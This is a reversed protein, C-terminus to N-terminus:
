RVYRSDTGDVLLVDGVFPTSLFFSVAIFAFIRTAQAFPAPVDSIIFIVASRTVLFSPMATASMWWQAIESATLEARWYSITKAGSLKMLMYSEALAAPTLTM